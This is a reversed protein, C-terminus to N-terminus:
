RRYAPSLNITSYVWLRFAFAKGPDQGETCCPRRDTLTKIVRKRIRVSQSVFLHRFLPPRTVVKQNDGLVTLHDVVYQQLIEVSVLDVSNAQSKMCKKFSTLLGPLM